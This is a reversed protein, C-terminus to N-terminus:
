KKASPDDAPDVYVLKWPGKGHLQIVTEGVTWAFHKQHASMYIFDGPGLKTDNTENWKDGMGLHIEGSIVTVHETAPHWHPPIKYGNPAKLRMTFEEPKGPDGELVAVQAGAPLVAPAPGWQLNNAMSTKHGRMPMHEASKAKMESKAASKKADQKQTAEKSAEQAMAVSALLTLMILVKKM